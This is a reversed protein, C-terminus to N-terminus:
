RTRYFSGLLTDINPFDTKKLQAKNDPNEQEAPSLKDFAAQGYVYLTLNENREMAMAIYFDEDTQSPLSMEAAPRKIDSAKKNKKRRIYPIGAGRVRLKRFVKRGSSDTDEEVLFVPKGPIYEENERFMIFEENENPVAEQKGRWDTRFTESYFCLTYPFQKRIEVIDNATLAAGNAIALERNKPILIEDLETYRTDMTLHRRRLWNTDSSIQKDTLVFNCFGGIMAIKFTGREYDDYPIHLRDMDEKAEALVRTLVPRISNDYAEVLTRYKVYYEEGKYYASIGDIEENYREGGPTFYRREKRLCNRLYPTREKIAVEINKVFSQYEQEEKKKVVIGKEALLLDAVEEMFALGANGIRGDTNEGAGWSGCVRIQSKGKQEEAKCLTVDLTGGGYDIVLVYGDFLKKRQKNIEQVFYACALTPESQFEVLKADTAKKVSDAVEFKRSDAGNQTWVYPVGVVVKDIERCEPNVKRVKRFLESLFTNTVTEPTKDAFGRRILERCDEERCSLLMKFGKYVAKARRVLPVAEYGIYTDGQKDVVVLSEMATVSTVGEGFDVPQPILQGDAGKKLHSVVSYTTGFDLGICEGM